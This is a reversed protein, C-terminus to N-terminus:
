DMKYDTTENGTTKVEEIIDEVIPKDKSLTKGIILGSGAIIFASSGGVGEGFNLIISTIFGACGIMVTVFGCFLSMSTKGRSDNFMQTFSFTHVSLNSKKM